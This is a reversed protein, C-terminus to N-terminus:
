WFGPCNRMGGWLIRCIVLTKQTKKKPTVASTSRKKKWPLFLLLNFVGLQHGKHSAGERQLAKTWKERSPGPNPAPVQPKTTTLTTV